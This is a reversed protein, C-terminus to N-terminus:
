KEKPTFIDLNDIGFEKELDLVQNLIEKFGGKFFKLELEEFKEGLEELAKPSLLKRFEPFIITDERSEHPRYMYLFEQLPAILNTGSEKLILDTLIRGSNHQKILIDIMESHKGNKKLIPFVFGEELSKEHHDEIFSRILAATEQLAEKNIPKGAKLRTLVEDYILLMRGLLAHEQMLDETPSVEEETALKYFKNTLKFISENKM